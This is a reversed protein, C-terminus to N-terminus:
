RSSVAWKCSIGKEDSRSLYRRQEYLEHLSQVDQPLEKLDM